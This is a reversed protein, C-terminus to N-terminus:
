GSRVSHARPDPRATTPHGVEDGPTPGPGGRRETTVRGTPLVNAGGSFLPVNPGVVIRAAERRWGRQEVYQVIGSLNSLIRVDVAFTLASASPTEADRSAPGMTGATVRAAAMRSTTASFLRALAEDGVCSASSARRSSKGFDDTAFM